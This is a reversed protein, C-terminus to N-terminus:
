TTFNNLSNGTVLLGGEQHGESQTDRILFLHPIFHNFILYALFAYLFISLSFM